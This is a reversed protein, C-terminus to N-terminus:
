SSSPNAYLFLFSTQHLLLNCFFFFLCSSFSSSAPYLNAVLGSGLKGLDRRYIIIKRWLFYFLFYTLSFRQPRSFFLVPLHLVLQAVLQLYFVVCFLLKIYCWQAAM